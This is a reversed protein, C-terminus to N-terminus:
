YSLIDVEDNSEGEITILLKNPLCAVAQGLKDIKGMKICIKNKCDSETISIKGNKIEITTDGIPGHFTKILDKELPYIFTNGDIEIKAYSSNSDKQLTTVSYFVIIALTIIFIAIDALKIPM